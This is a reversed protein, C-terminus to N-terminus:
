NSVAWMDTPEYVIIMPTGRYTEVRGTVCINRSRLVWEPARIFKARNLGRIMVTLGREPYSYGLGLFTSWRGWTLAFGRSVYGCATIENGFHMRADEADMSDVPRHVAGGLSRAVATVPFHDSPYRGDDNARVIDAELVNWDPSVLIADIKDGTSEGRFGNFTGVETSDAHLTRFVESLHAATDESAPHVALLRQFAPNDEGANFDGMVMVPDDVERAEIRELLLRASRERSPQSEHDWHTNFVYFTKGALLDQFRAWTVIRTIGNGWSTSAVVEPTDSLWFTGSDLVKLRRKDYLIASYEGAESGDDRGVGVEGFRPFDAEIEDLQFRLGEQIGLVAPDFKRIVRVVLDRRLPWANDGDNATGYRINFSMVRLPASDDPRTDASDSPLSPSSACSAAAFAIILLAFTRISPGTVTRTM